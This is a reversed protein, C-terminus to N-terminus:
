AAHVSDQDRAMGLMELGIADRSWAATPRLPGLRGHHIVALRDAIEFLEDLDQSIVLIASGAAALDVLAQRILRAAGADVGWTPQNVVLLRPRRIIERGVVFKQLNGGSLKRADPDPEPVRVDFTEIISRALRRAADLRIFGARSVRGFGHHSVLTNESLRQSPAAAHGLREEPVFAAGLRRRADIGLTGCPEGGIRIWEATASLREGSLAAFLESQGNGAVGAIGVVEGARVDLDIRDLAIAHASPPPRTLEEVRLVEARGVHPAGARVQGIESGVMLGAIERASRERPDITAVVRGTRLITARRCLRRVEELRHSIYLIACGETALRELTEFLREAEQPTLVSTPEDLILLKPEQLLCRVIEIRQREGASLTWVARDPELALGYSRIMEGLRTRVAALTRDGSLAVAVNEAVTLEDFLSFHQFVMGIGLERAEVPSAITVPRGQWSIDGASPEVIGYLIKVLTSKGAGNEGLLAHIEGSEVTLSIADNAVLDGYRKSIQRLEVLPGPSSGSETVRHFGEADPGDARSGKGHRGPDDGRLGPDMLM